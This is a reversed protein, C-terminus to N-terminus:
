CPVEDEARCGTRLVAGRGCCPVRDEHLVPIDKCAGALEHGQRHCLCARVPVCACARVCLCACARVCARVCACVCARVCARM